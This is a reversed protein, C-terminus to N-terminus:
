GAAADNADKMMSEVQTRLATRARFLRSKVTGVPLGLVETMQQYDLGQLDRLVLVARMQPDIAALAAVLVEEEETREVREAGTPEAMGGPNVGMESGLNQGMTGGGEIPEDLSAHRRLKQKRLHSLCCNMTVRIVWTSLKARGDYRDLGEIVKILADHTLDAAQEHDRLMRYCVSYVRRQYGELLVALAARDGQRYAELLELERDPTLRGRAETSPGFFASNSLPSPDAPVLLKAKRLLLISARRMASDPIFVGCREVMTHPRAQADVVGPRRARKSVVM